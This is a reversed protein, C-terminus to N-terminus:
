AAVEGPVANRSDAPQSAREAAIKLAALQVVKPVAASTRREIRQVTTRHMGLLDGLEAASLGLRERLHTLESGTMGCRTCLACDSDLAKQVIGAHLICLMLMSSM